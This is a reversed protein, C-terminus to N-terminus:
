FQDGRGYVAVADRNGREREIRAWQRDGRSFHWWETEDRHFGEASLLENLLIRNAHAKQGSVDKADAFYNPNSRESNEDIPSGMDVEHGSADAFTCDVAGGTSHAPPTAADESPRGFVRFVKKELVARQEITLNAPDLGAAKAQIVFEREAMFIQVANSRYCDFLMIKWGHRILALRKQVRILADLVGQRLMWPSVGNYPAGLAMYPHPTFRAFVGEPIAAFPEGCEKIPITPAPNM